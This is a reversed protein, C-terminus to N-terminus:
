IHSICDILINQYELVSLTVKRSSRITQHTATYLNTVSCKVHERATALKCINDFNNYFAPPLCSVFFDFSNMIAVILEHLNNYQLINASVVNSIALVPTSSCVVNSVVTSAVNSSNCVVTSAVNSSNCVVTSSPSTIVTSRTYTRACPKKRPPKHSDTDLEPAFRV